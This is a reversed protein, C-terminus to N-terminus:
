VLRPNRISEFEHETLKQAYWTSANPTLPRERGVGISFFEAGCRVFKDETSMESDRAGIEFYRDIIELIRYHRIFFLSQECPMISNRGVTFSGTQIAEVWNGFAYCDQEKYIFDCGESYAMLAPILWSISWGTFRGAHPAPASMHGLNHNIRVIRYSQDYQPLGPWQANDVVVINSSAKRTNPLWKNRWELRKETLTASDAYFGSGILYSM